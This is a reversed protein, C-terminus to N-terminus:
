QSFPTAKCIERAVSRAFCALFCAILLLLAVLWALVAFRFLWDISWGGIKKGLCLSGEQTSGQARLHGGFAGGQLSRPAGRGM